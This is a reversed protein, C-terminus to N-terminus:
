QGVIFGTCGPRRSMEVSMSENARQCWRDSERAGTEVLQRPIAWRM